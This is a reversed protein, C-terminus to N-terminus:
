KLVLARLTVLKPVPQGAATLAAERGESVGINAVLLPGLGQDFQLTFHSM